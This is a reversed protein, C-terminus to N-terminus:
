PMELGRKYSYLLIRAIRITIPAKWPCCKSLEWMKGRQCAKKVEQIAEFPKGKM